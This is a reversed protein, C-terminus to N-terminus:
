TFGHPTRPAPGASQRVVLKAPVTVRKPGTTGARLDLLLEVAAAALARAPVRVTTLLPAGLVAPSGDGWGIVSVDHPVHIGFASAAQILAAAAADDACVFATPGTRQGTAANRGAHLPAAQLEFNSIALSPGASAIEALFRRGLQSSAVSSVLGIKRHGFGALYSIVTAVAQGFDVSVSPEDDPRGAVFVIWPRHHGPMAVGVEAGVILRGELDLGAFPASAPNGLEAAATERILTAFGALELRAIAAAVLAAHETLKSVEIGVLGSRLSSLARAAANPVYGLAEIAARVRAFRDSRVRDAGTLVRSVTATSVSASRAVDEITVRHEGDSRGPQRM